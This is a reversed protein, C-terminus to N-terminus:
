RRCLMTNVWRNIRQPSLGSIQFFLSSKMGVPWHTECLASPRTAARYVTKAVDNPGLSVGMNAISAANMDTVMDTAVFLPMIDLVRINYKAWEIDLGESIGRVAFKSASYSILDPQGYIASASSLNIVRAHKASQLWPLAAHCGHLVGKVNVDILRQHQEISLQEFPGSYLIGANNVLINLEGSWACFESLAAQWSDYQSVDLFGAHARVGLQNALQQAKELNLDYIGVNYNKHYFLRAIAEGIGQASGSIFISKAM